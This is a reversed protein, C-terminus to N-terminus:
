KEIIEVSVVHVPVVPSSEEGSPSMKVPTAAIADVVDMGKTVRGFIVYNKPLATVQHMIFFQSGNTNPGSNAMAVTGRTYDGAFPEDAFKYGPGGTGDGKPDGGQIMFGAIVRHFVTGDYFNKRSLTVFNEATKPTDKANLAITLDGKDTHLIATYSKKMDFSIPTPTLVSETSVVSVTESLVNVPAETPSPSPLTSMEQRQPTPKIALFGILAILSVIAGIGIVHKWM